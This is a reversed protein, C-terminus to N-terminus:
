PRAKCQYIDVAWKKLCPITGIKTTPHQNSKYNVYSDNHTFISTQFQQTDRRVLVNLFPLKGGVEEEMKFHISSRISNLHNKVTMDGSFSLIM